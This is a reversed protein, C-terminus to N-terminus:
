WGLTITESVIEAVTDTYRQMLADLNHMPINLLTFLVILLTRTDEYVDGDDTYLYRDIFKSFAGSFAVMTQRVSDFDFSVGFRGYVHEAWETDLDAIRNFTNWNIYAEHMLEAVRKNNSCVIIEVVYPLALAFMLDKEEAIVRGLHVRRVDMFRLVIYDFIDDKSAFLNYLSGNLIKARLAIQRMTTKEYGQEMFLEFALHAIDDRKSERRQKQPSDEQVISKLKSLPNKIGDDTM